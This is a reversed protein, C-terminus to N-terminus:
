QVTVSAPTAITVRVQTSLSFATFTAVCSGINVPAIVFPVSTGMATGATFTAIATSGEGCTDSESFSGNGGPQAITVIQPSASPGPFAYSQNSASIAGPTPLPTPSPSAPPNTAPSSTSSTSTQGGM